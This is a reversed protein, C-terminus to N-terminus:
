DEDRHTPLKTRYPFPEGLAQPKFAQTPTDTGDRQRRKWEEHDQRGGAGHPRPQRPPPAFAELATSPPNGAARDALLRRQVEEEHLRKPTSEVLMSMTPLEGRHPRMSPRGDLATEAAAIRKERAIQEDKWLDKWREAERKADAERELAKREALEAREVPRVIFWRWAGLGIGSSILGGLIAKAWSLTEADM